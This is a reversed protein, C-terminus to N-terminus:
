AAADSKSALSQYVLGLAAGFILHMILTLVPSMIGFAMGFFGAGAMPMVIIMMVLWAGIGLVMGKVLHGDGPISKHYLAYIGGWLVTGILFHAIWGMIAPMGMMAALMAVPDLGPMVGMANKLVLLVSLVITAVFGAIFGDRLKSTDM